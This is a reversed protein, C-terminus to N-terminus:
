CLYHKRMVENWTVHSVRKNLKSRMSLTYSKILVCFKSDIDNYKCFLGVTLKLSFSSSATLIRSDIFALPILVSVCNVQSIQVFGNSLSLSHITNNYVFRTHKILGKM